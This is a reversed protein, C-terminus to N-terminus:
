NYHEQERIDFSFCYIVFKTSSLKTQGGLKIMTRGSDKHETNTTGFSDLRGAVLPKMFNLANDLDQSNNMPKEGRLDM